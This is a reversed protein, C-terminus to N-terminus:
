VCVPICYQISTSKSCIWGGPCDANTLCTPLNGTPLMSVPVGTMSCVAQGSTDETCQCCRYSGGCGPGITTCVTSDPAGASTCGTDSPPPSTKKRKKKTKKKRAEVLRDPILYGHLAATTGGLMATGFRRRTTRQFTKALADFRTPDM